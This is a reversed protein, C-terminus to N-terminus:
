ETAEQGAMMTTEGARGYLDPDGTPRTKFRKHTWLYQAPMELARAEIFQNMRATAAVIDTGPYSDWPPYLRCVYGDETMETVCPIVTADTMQALRAVSTVTAAPVGFFPVFGADRTGFDMDPLNFFPQGRKIARILPRATDSRPFIEALGFRLRGQRIAADLAANSQQSYISAVTKSQHLQTAVGAVDLALFHPVLWMVPRESHEALHIDGEVQILRRLRAPSAYWLLGRELLSRGLWAFHERAVAQRQADPWQPLCLALNRLAVERRARAFRWLVAGLSRGLAAQAGLPLWHLLWLLALLAQSGM